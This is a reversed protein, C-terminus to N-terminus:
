RSFVQPRLRHFTHEPFVFQDYLDFCDSVSMGQELLGTFWNRLDDDLQRQDSFTGCLQHHQNRIKLEWQVVGHDSRITLVSFM